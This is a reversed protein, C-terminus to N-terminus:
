NRTSTGFHFVDDCDDEAAAAARPEQRERLVTGFGGHRERALVPEDIDGDGVADVALDVLDVDERLELGRAEVPVDAARIPEVREAAAEDFDEGGLLRHAFGIFRPVPVLAGGVGDAFVEAMEDLAIGLVDEDEGAILEVAHVEAFHQGRVLGRAGVDRDGAFGDIAAFGAGEADHADVGVAADDAEQLLRLDRGLQVVNRDIRGPKSARPM